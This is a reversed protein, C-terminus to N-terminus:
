VPKKTPKEAPKEAPKKDGGCKGEGCKGEHAKKEAGCKGEGCKGERAKKEAGCKGEGCKGEKAKTAPASGSTAPDAFQDVQYGAALLTAGFPEIGAQTTTAGAALAAGIALALPKIAHKKTM